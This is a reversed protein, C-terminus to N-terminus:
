MQVPWTIMIKVDFSYELLDDFSLTFTEM